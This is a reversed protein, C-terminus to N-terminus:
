NGVGFIRNINFGFRFDGAWFDTNTHSLAYQELHWNSSSFFLQFVHGGTEIDLGVAFPNYAGPDRSGLVPLYEAYLAYRRNLRYEAGIGVGALTQDNGPLPTAFRTVMPTVQLSLRDSFKRAIMLGGYWSLDEAFPQGNERTTVAVNGSFGLSVPMGERAQRAIAYKTRLDVVKEFTTRGIGLSWRDSLGYDIGLRVNPPSDFGFFNALTRNSIVGFTHIITVNLNSAPIQEVTASAMLNPTWFIETTTEETDARQREMQGYLPVTLTILCLTTLLSRMM